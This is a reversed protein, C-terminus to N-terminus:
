GVGQVLHTIFAEAGDKLVLEPLDDELRALVKADRFPVEPPLYAPDTVSDEVLYPRVGLVGRVGSRISLREVRRLHVMLGQRDHPQIGFVVVAIGPNGVRQM